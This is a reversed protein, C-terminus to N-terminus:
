REALSGGCAQQCEPARNTRPPRGPGRMAPKDGALRSTYWSLIESELFCWHGSGFPDDHKRLGEKKVLHTLTDPDIKKCGKLRGLVVRAKNSSLLPEM